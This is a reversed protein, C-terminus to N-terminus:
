AKPLIAFIVSSGEEALQVDLLSSQGPQVDFLELSFDGAASRQATVQTMAGKFDVTGASPLHGQVRVKRHTADYEAVLNLLGDGMQWQREVPQGAAPSLTLSDIIEKAAILSLAMQQATTAADYNAPFRSDKLPAIAGSRNPSALVLGALQNLAADQGPFLAIVSQVLQKGEQLSQRMARQCQSFLQSLVPEPMPVPLNLSRIGSWRAAVPEAELEADYDYGETEWPFVPPNLEIEHRLRRKLLSHFRDQVAPTEGPEFFSFGEVPLYTSETLYTLRVAIDESDLPDLYPQLDAAASGKLEMNREMTQRDGNGSPALVTPSPEQSLWVLINKIAEADRNM